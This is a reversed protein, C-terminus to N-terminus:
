SDIPFDMTRLKEIQLELLSNLVYSYVTMDNGSSGALDVRAVILVPGYVDAANFGLMWTYPTFGKSIMESQCDDFNVPALPTVWDLTADHLLNSCMEFSADIAKHGNEKRILSLDIFLNSNTWEIAVCDLPCVNEEKLSPTIDNTLPPITKDPGSWFYSRLNVYAHEPVDEPRLILDALKPYQEPSLTPRSTNTIAPVITPTQTFTPQARIIPSEGSLTSTAVVSTLSITPNHTPSPGGILPVCGTLFILFVSLHLVKM